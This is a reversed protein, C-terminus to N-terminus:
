KIKWLDPQKNIEYEHLWSHVVGVSISLEKAIEPISMDNEIYLRRLLDDIREGQWREVVKKLSM